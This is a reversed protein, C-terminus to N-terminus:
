YARGNAPQGNRAQGAALTAHVTAVDEGAWDLVREPLGLEEGLAFIDQNSIGQKRAWGLLERGTEPNRRGRFPRGDLRHATPYAPEPRRAPQPERRAPEPRAAPQGAQRLLELRDAVLAALADYGARVHAQMVAFDAFAGDPLETEITLGVADSGYDPRGEKRCIHM